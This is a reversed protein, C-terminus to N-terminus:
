SEDFGYNIELIIVGESNWQTEFGRRRGHVFELEMKREGNEYWVTYLGHKAGNDDYHMEQQKNGNPYWATLVGTPRGHNYTVQSWKEGGQYWVSQPGHQVGDVFHAESKKQGSEWWQTTIGQPIREGQDNKSVERRSQLTGDPWHTEIVEIEGKSEEQEAPGTEPQTAQGHSGGAETAVQRDEPTTRGVSEATAYSVVWCVMVVVAMGIRGTIM